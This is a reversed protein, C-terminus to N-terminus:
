PPFRHFLDTEQIQNNPTRSKQDRDISVDFVRVKGPVDKDYKNDMLREERRQKKGQERKPMTSEPLILRQIAEEVTELLKRNNISSKSSLSGRATIVPEKTRAEGTAEEQADERSDVQLTPPIKSTNSPHQEHLSDRPQSYNELQTPAMEPKNSRNEVRRPM